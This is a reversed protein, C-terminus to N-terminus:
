EFEDSLRHVMKNPQAVDIGCIFRAASYYEVENANTELENLVDEVNRAWEDIHPPIKM